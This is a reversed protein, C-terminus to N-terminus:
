VVYRINKFDTVTFYGSSSIQKVKISIPDDYMPLDSSGSSLSSSYKAEKLHPIRVGEVQQLRDVLHALILEGDFPLEKLYARIAEEVPKNGENSIGEASLVLPDVYIDLDLYLKDPSKSIIVVHTGAYKIRNFYDKVAILVSQDEIKQPVKGVEKAIKIAITGPLVSESVAAYKVIKSAEVQELTKGNNNFEESDALLYFGTQFELAKQRYWALRGSKQNDLLSIIEKKHQGFLLELLYISYSFIDFLINELSVLSFEDEFSKGTLSYANKIHENEVFATTMENKIEKRTRTM